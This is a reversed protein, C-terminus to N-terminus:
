ARKGRLAFGLFLLTTVFTSVSWVIREPVIPIRLLDSREDMLWVDYLLWVGGATVSALFLASLFSAFRWLGDRLPAPLREVLVDVSAHAHTLTGAILAASAALVIAGQVVEIAGLLPIGTHRGIVSIFDTAMATLLGAGGIWFAVIAFPGFKVPAEGGEGNQQDTM